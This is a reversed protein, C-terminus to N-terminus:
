YCKTMLKTATEQDEEDTHDLDVFTKRERLPSEMFSYPNRFNKIIM